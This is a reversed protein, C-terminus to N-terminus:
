DGLQLSRETAASVAARIIERFSGNEFVEIAAATTGGKSTVKQRLIEAPDESEFLLAAAGYLTQKVLSESEEKSLGVECGADILAEALFFLYAPGSGSLGTVADLQSEEVVAASGVASLIEVAWILDEDNATSGSAVGAAGQGILAPTNPMSRIVKVNEGLIKEMSSIKIGAAISLVRPPRLDALVELVEKVKNPKVAILSDLNSLPAESISIGRLTEALYKRREVVPEVLHMEDESAWEKTLLGRALAEGMNGGGIIQLRFTM